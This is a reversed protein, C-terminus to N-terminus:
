RERQCRRWAWGAMSENAQIKTEVRMPPGANRSSIDINIVSRKRSRKSKRQEQHITKKEKAFAVACRLEQFGILAKSCTEKWTHSIHQSAM